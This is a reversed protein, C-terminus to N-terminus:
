SKSIILTPTLTAGNKFLIMKVPTATFQSNKSKLSGWNYNVPSNAGLRFEGPFYSETLSNPSGEFIM